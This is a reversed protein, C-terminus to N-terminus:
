QDKFITDFECSGDYRLSPVDRHDLTWKSRCLDIKQYYKNQTQYSMIADKVNWILSGVLAIGFAVQWFVSLSVRISSKQPDFTSGKDSM